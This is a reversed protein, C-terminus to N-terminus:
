SRDPKFNELDEVTDIDSLVPLVGYDINSRDLEEVAERFVRGTSWQKDIFLGPCPKNLGVVYYGGDKAPGLVASKKQLLDFAETLLTGTLEPCDTGILAIRQYNDSFGQKFANFMRIGLDSGSQLFAQTKTGLFIDNEPIHDDYYVALDAGCAFAAKRTIERLTNYVNLAFDKDTSEALRTKVNGRIPNRTFIILLPTDM